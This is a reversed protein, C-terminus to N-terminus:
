SENTFLYKYKSAIRRIKKAYGQKPAYYKDIYTYYSEETVLDKLYAAQYLAYDQVSRQWSDFGARGRVIRSMTTPRQGPVGMGFLNCADVFLPSKGHDSEEIAQAFVIHPFKVGSQKIEAALFELAFKQKGEVTIVLAKQEHHIVRDKKIIDKRISLLALAVIGVLMWPWLTVRRYQMTNSDYKYYM